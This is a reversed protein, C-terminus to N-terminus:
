SRRFPPKGGSSGLGGRGRRGICCSGRKRQLRYTRGSSAVERGNRRRAGRRATTSWKLSRFKDDVNEEDGPQGLTHSSSPSLGVSGDGSDVNSLGDKGDSALVDVSGDDHLGKSSSSVLNTTTGRRTSVKLTSPCLRQGRHSRGGKLEGSSLLDDDGLLPSEGGDVSRIVLLELRILQYNLIPRVNLYTTTEDQYRRRRPDSVRRSADSV